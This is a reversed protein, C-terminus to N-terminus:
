QPPIESQILGQTQRITAGVVADASRGAKECRIRRNERGGRVSGKGGEKQVYRM